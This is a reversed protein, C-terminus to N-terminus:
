AFASRMSDIMSVFRMNSVIPAVVYRRDSRRTFCGSTRWTSVIRVRSSDKWTGSLTCKM